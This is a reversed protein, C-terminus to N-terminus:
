SMSPTRSGTAQALLELFSHRHHIGGAVVHQREQM